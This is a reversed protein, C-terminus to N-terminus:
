EALFYAKVLERCRPPVQGRDLSRAARKQAALWATDYPLLGAAPPPLEAANADRLGDSSDLFQAYQPDWVHTWRALDGERAPSTPVTEPRRTSPAAEEAAAQKATATSDAEGQGAASALAKAIEDGVAGGAELLARRARALADTLQDLEQEDAAMAAATLAELLEPDHAALEAVGRLRRAFAQRELPQMQRFDEALAALDLDGPQTPPDPLFGLAACLLVTLTLAGATARTRKWFPQKHPRLRQLADWAQRHVAEAVPTPSAPSSALEVATALREGLKFRVDLFAAADRLSVGSAVVVVVGVIAGLGIGIVPLALAPLLQDAGTLVAWGGVAGGAVLIAAAAITLRRRCRLARSASPLMAALGLLAPLACMAVAVPVSRPAVSWAAQLVASTLGGAGVTVAASEAARTWLLKRATRRLVTLVRQQPITSEKNGV